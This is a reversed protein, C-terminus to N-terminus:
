SFSMPHITPSRPIPLGKPMPPEGSYGVVHRYEIKQDPNLVVLEADGKQPTELYVIWKGDVSIQPNNISKWSDYDQHTLPRKGSAPDNQAHIPASLILSFIFSFILFIKVAKFM